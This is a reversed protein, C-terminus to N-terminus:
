HRERKNYNPFYENYFLSLFRSEKDEGDIDINDRLIRAIDIYRYMTYYDRNFCVKSQLLKTAIDVAITKMSFNRIVFADESFWRNFNEQIVNLFDVLKIDLMKVASPFITHGYLDILIKFANQWSFLEFFTDKKALTVEWERVSNVDTKLLYFADLKNLALTVRSVIDNFNETDEKAKYLKHVIDGLSPILYRDEGFGTKSDNEEDRYIDMLKAVIKYQSDEFLLLELYMRKPYRKCRSLTRSLIDFLRNFFRNASLKSHIDNDIFYFIYSLDIDNYVTNLIKILIGCQELPINTLFCVKYCSLDVGDYAGLRYLNRIGAYRLMRTFVTIDTHNKIRKDCMYRFIEWLGKFAREQAFTLDDFTCQCMKTVERDDLLTDSYPIGNYSTEDKIRLFEASFDNWLKEINAM